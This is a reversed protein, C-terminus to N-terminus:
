MTNLVAKSYVSPNSYFPNMDTCPVIMAKYAGDNNVTSGAMTFEYRKFLSNDANYLDIYKYKNVFALATSLNTTTNPTWGAEESVGFYLRCTSVNPSSFYVLVRQNDSNMYKTGLDVGTNSRAYIGVFRNSGSTVAQAGYTLTFTENELTGQSTKTYTLGTETQTETVAAGINRYELTDPNQERQQVTRTKDQSCGSLTQEFSEGKNVTNAAPLESSCGYYDGSVVWESIIPEASNWKPVNVFTINSVPYVVTYEAMSLSFLPLLLFPITKIKIKM